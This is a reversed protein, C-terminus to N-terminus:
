SAQPVAVRAVARDSSTLDLELAARGGFMLRLREAANLLGHGSEDRRARAGEPRPNQVEIRLRDDTREVTIDLVGGAPLQAIGHKIANEVLLQLLMVPIHADRAGPDIKWNVRLRHELRLGELRLYDEVNAYEREFPVLDDQGMALTYRLLRALQTVADRACERDEAILARISNLSNFLFHPNLQAKLARLEAAQLGKELASRKLQFGIGFYLVNWLAFLMSWRMVALGSILPSPSRDGYYGVEIATVASVEAVALLVTALVVRLALRGLGLAIWDHRRAHARVVHTFAIGFAASAIPEGLTRTFPMGTPVFHLAQMAVYAGWGTLQCSWYARSTMIM